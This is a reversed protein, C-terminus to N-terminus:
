RDDTGGDKLAAKETARLRKNYKRKVASREGPHWGHYNKARRSLADQEVGCIKPIRHAGKAADTM